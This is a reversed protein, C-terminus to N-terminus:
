CLEYNSIARIDDKLIKLIMSNLRFNTLKLFNERRITTTM